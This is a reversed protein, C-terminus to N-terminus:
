GKTANVRALPSGMGGIKRSSIHPGPGSGTGGIPPVGESIVPAALVYPHVNIMYYIMHSLAMGCSSLLSENRCGSQAIQFLKLSTEKSIM